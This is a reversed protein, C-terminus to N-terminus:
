HPTNHHNKQTQELKAEIAELSFEQAVIRGDPDILVYAPVSAIAFRRPVDTSSWDGLLAHQWPLPKAKLFDRARQRDSDLNAGVIVLPKDGAFQERVHEVQDLKAVCPACWTAWFDVLVYNGRLAALDMKKGSPTEFSFDSAVDGVKPLTFSPIPLQGLDLATDGPKVSFHVVRQAMPHVLCGETSGYLNVAFDYEGPQVGSICFHGDSDPKVFWHELTNLYTKGEPTSHWAGSWGRKWNFDKGPLSQPLEIGPRLAVLYNLAFHYDFNAPRNEVVLQGTVDIGNGGLTVDVTEGPELRLPVSQSSKLPSPVSFHLFADIRSPIPPVREIVFSGDANTKGYRIAFARPHGTGRIRIPEITLSMNAVPKGSQLLRGTVRAWPKIRIDGPLETAARSVEAYGHPAVIQLIYSEIPAPIEFAGSKDAQIMRDSSREELMSDLDNTSGGESWSQLLIRAKSAPQGGSDLVRGRFRPGPELRVTLEPNPDDIRYRRAHRFTKYGRAEIQVCHETDHREFEIDFRGATAQRVLRRWINPIETGAWYEVPVVDFKDIPRGTQADVVSGKIHFLPNITRTQESGDATVTVEGQAYGEKNLNFKVADDPAWSWEIRGAEDTQLPIGTEEGGVGRDNNDVLYAGRWADVSTYVGPVPAGTRDVIRLRLIKGPKLRFDVPALGPAVVIARLDPMWGKAVVAVKQPGTTAVQFRFQGAGDTRCRETNMHKGGHGWIVVANPIPRGAADTVKGTVPIGKRMVVVSTQARLAEFSVNQQAPAPGWSYNALYDPHTISNLQTGKDPRADLHWRGHADSYAQGREFAATDFFNLRAGAVPRGEEDKVIGGITIPRALRFRYDDKIFQHDTRGRPSFWEEERCYGPKSASIGVYALLKPLEITTRGQADCKYTRRDKLDDVTTVDVRVIAEPLPNNAEDVVGIRMRGHTRLGPREPTKPSVVTTSAASRSPTATKDQSRAQDLWLLFLAAALIARQATTTRPKLRNNAVM